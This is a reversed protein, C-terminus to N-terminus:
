RTFTIHMFTGYGPAITHTSVMDRLGHALAMEENVRYLFM